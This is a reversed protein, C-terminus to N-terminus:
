DDFNVVTRVITLKRSPNTSKRSILKSVKIATMATVDEDDVRILKDGVRLQDAVSSTEKIAHVIPAGEDPTDIVVGLKGPPALVEIIQEKYPTDDQYHADFSADDSFVSFSTQPNTPQKKLSSGLYTKSYDYDMTAVSKDEYTYACSDASSVGLRPMPEALTSVEDQAHSIEFNEPRNPNSCSQVSEKKRNITNRRKKMYIWIGVGFLSCSSCVVVVSIVIIVVNLGKKPEDKEVPNEIQVMYVTTVPYFVPSFEQLTTLYIARKVKTDLATEVIEQFTISHNQVARFSITQQYIIEQQQLFRGPPNQRMVKTIIQVDRIPLRDFDGFYNFAENNYYLDYYSDTGLEFATIDSSNLPLLPSLSIQLGSITGTLLDSYDLSPLYSPKSTPILSPNSTPFLSPEFTPSLTPIRTPALTPNFTPSKTPYLTPYKTPNKTPHITPDKTLLFTPLMTPNRTPQKTTNETLTLGKMTPRFTNSIPQTVSPFPTIPIILLSPENVPSFITEEDNQRALIPSRTISLWTPSLENKVDFPDRRCVVVFSINQLILLTITKRLKM